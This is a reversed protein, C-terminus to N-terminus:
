GDGGGNKSGCNCSGGSGGGAESSCECGYSDFFSEPDLLPVLPVPDPIYAGQKPTTNTDKNQM